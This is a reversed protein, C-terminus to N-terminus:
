VVRHEELVWELAKRANILGYFEKQQEESSFREYMGQLVKEEANHYEEIRKRIEEETKM